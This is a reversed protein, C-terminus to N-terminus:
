FLQPTAYNDSVSVTDLYNRKVRGGVMTKNKNHELEKNLVKYLNLMSIRDYPNANICRDYIYSVFRKQRDNTFIIRKNLAAIIYALSFVDVKFALEPSFIQKVKRYGKAKISEAFAKIGNRYITALNDDEAVHHESFMGVKEAVNEMNNVIKEFKSYDNDLQQKHRLMLAAIKFEPPYYRYEHNLIGIRSAVYIKDSNESLGFDILNLKNNSILVNGPKIDCHVIDNGQMIVLGKVFQVMSKLFIEYSMSPAHNVKVGGNELIIQFYNNKEGRLCSLASNSNKLSKKNIKNAGKLKLTFFGDPDIKQIKILTKLEENFPTKGKIFLKSVDDDARDKYEIYQELM